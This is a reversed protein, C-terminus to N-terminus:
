IRPASLNLLEPTTPDLISEYHSVHQEEIQAIELYLARALPDEPRNGVNMYFNMTQQESSVITLANLISQFSCAEVTM